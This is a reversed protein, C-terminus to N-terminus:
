LRLRVGGKKKKEEIRREPKLEAQRKEKLQKLLTNYADMMEKKTNAMTLKQPQNNQDTM